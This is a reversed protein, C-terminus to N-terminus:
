LCFPLYRDTLPQGHFNKRNLNSNVGCGWVALFALLKPRFIISYTCPFLCFCRFSSAGIPVSRIYLSLLWSRISSKTNGYPLSSGSFSQILSAASTGQSTVSSRYAARNLFLPWGAWGARIANPASSIWRRSFHLSSHSTFCM